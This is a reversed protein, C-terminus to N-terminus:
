AHGGAAPSEVAKKSDFPVGMWCLLGVLGQMLYVVIFSFSFTVAEERTLGAGRFILILVLDRTGLGSLSVPLLSVFVAASVSVILIHISAEIRLGRAFLIFCSYHCVWALVTLVTAAGVARPGLLGFDGITETMVRDLSERIGRHPMRSIFVRVFRKLFERRWFLGVVALAVLGLLVSSMLLQNKFIGPLLLLSLYGAVVLFVIDFLRDALSSFIAKGASMGRGTLYLSKAFDGIRGPTVLGLYLASAYIRFAMPLPVTLNQRAVIRKWRVSKVLTLLLALGLALAVHGPEIHRYSRWIAGLDVRTLIVVFLVIGGGQFLVRM